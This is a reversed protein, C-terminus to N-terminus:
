AIVKTFKKASHGNWKKYREQGKGEAQGIEVLGQGVPREANFALGRGRKEKGTSSSRQIETIETLCCYVLNMRWEVDIGPQSIVDIRQADPLGDAFCGGVRLGIRHLFISNDVSDRRGGFSGPVTLLPERNPKTLISLGFLRSLRVLAWVMATTCIQTNSRIGAAIGM